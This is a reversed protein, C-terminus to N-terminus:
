LVQPLAQPRAAQHFCIPWDTQLQSIHSTSSIEPFLIVHVKFDIHRSQSRSTTGTAISHAPQNDVRLTPVCTYIIGMDRFLLHLTEVEQCATSYAIYELESSSFTIQDQVAALQSQVIRILFLTALFM